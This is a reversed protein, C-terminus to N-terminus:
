RVAMDLASEDVALVSWSRGDDSSLEYSPVLLTAGSAPTYQAVGLRATTIAVDGVPWPVPSGPEAPVPPATPASSSAPADATTGGPAALAAAGDRAAAPDLISFGGLMGFRPDMLRAVAEVPSVVPYTGLETVPALPGSLSQVGAGSLTVYWALGTRQGAIVQYATVSTLTSDGSDASEYEFAAPDLGIAGLLTRAKDTAAARDPAPVGPDCQDPAPAPAGAGGSASGDPPCALPDYYNVTTQGDAFVMLSPGTGDQPGVLYMGDQLRPEGTVGLTAALDATREATFTTRADFTWATATGTAHSLGAAHFTSRPPPWPSPFTEPAVGTTGATHDAPGGAAEGGPPALTIAPAATETAPSTTRGLGFGASAVVLAGAAVAAVTWRSRGTRAARAGNSAAYAGNGAAHDGNSAARAGNGVARVDTRAARADARVAGADAVATVPGDDAPADGREGGGIAGGADAAVAAASREAEQAAVRAAVLGRLRALDTRAGAAPDAARLRDLAADEPSGEVRGDPQGEVRDDEDRM